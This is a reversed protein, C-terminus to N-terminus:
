RSHMLMNADTKEAQTLQAKLSLQNNCSQVAMEPGGLRSLSSAAKLPLGHVCGALELGALRGVAFLSSRLM